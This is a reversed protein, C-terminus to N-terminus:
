SMRKIDIPHSGTIGARVLCSTTPRFLTLEKSWKSYNCKEGLRKTTNSTKDEQFRPVLSLSILYIGTTFNV